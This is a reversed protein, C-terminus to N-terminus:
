IQRAREERETQGEEKRGEREGPGSVKNYSYKHWLDTHLKDTKCPKLNV